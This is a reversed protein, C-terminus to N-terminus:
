RSFNNFRRRFRTKWLRQAQQLYDLNSAVDGIALSWPLSRVEDLFRTYTYACSTHACDLCDTRIASCSSGSFSALEFLRWVPESLNHMWDIEDQLIGEYTCINRVARDDELVCVGLAETPRSSIAAVVSFRSM